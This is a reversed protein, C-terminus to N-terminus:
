AQIAMKQGLGLYPLEPLAPIPLRLSKFAKWHCDRYNRWICNLMYRVNIVTDKDMFENDGVGFAYFDKKSPEKPNLSRSIYEILIQLGESRFDSESIGEFIFNSKPAVLIDLAFKFEVKLPSNSSVYKKIQGLFAKNMVMPIPRSSQM